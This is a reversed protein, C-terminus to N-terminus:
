EAASLALPPSQVISANFANMTLGLVSMGPVAIANAPTDRAFSRASM